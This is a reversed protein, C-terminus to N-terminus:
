RIVKLTRKTDFLDKKPHKQVLEAVLEARKKTLRSSEQSLEKKKSDIARIQTYLTGKIPNGKGDTMRLSKKLDVCYVNGKHTFHTGDKFKDPYLTEVMKLGFENLGVPEDPNSDKILQRQEPEGKILIEKADEIIACVRNMQLADVAAEEALMDAQLLVAVHKADLVGNGILKITEVNLTAM